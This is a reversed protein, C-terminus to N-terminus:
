VKRPLFNSLATYSEIPKYKLNLDSIIDKKKEQPKYDLLKYNPKPLTWSIYLVFNDCYKSHFGKEKLINLLYMICETMNFIPLGSGPLFEPVEFFCFTQETLSVEKIKKFCKMAIMKYIKLRNDEKEKQKKHIEQINFTLLDDQTNNYNGYYDYKMMNNM